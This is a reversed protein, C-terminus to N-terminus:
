SIEEPSKELSIALWTTISKAIAKASVSRYRINASAAEAELDGGKAM